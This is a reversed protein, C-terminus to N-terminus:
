GTQPATLDAQANEGFEQQLASQFADHAEQLVTEEMFREYNAQNRFTARLTSGDWSLSHQDCDKLLAGLFYKEGKAHRLCNTLRKWSDLTPSNEPPQREQQPRQGNRAPQNRPNNPSNNFPKTQGKIIAAGRKASDLSIIGRRYLRELAARDTEAPTRHRNQGKEGPNPGAPSATGNRSHNHSQPQHPQPDDPPAPRRFQPPMDDEAPDTTQTPAHDTTM